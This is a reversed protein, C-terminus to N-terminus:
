HSTTSNQDSIYKRCSFSEGDDFNLFHSTALMFVCVVYRYEAFQIQTTGSQTLRWLFIDKQM